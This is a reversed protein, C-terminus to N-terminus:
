NHEDGIRRKFNIVLLDDELNRPIRKITGTVFFKTCESHRECLM